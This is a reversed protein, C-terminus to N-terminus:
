AKLMGYRTGYKMWLYQFGCCKGRMGWGRGAAPGQKRRRGLFSHLIERLFSKHYRGQGTMTEVVPASHGHKDPRRRNSLVM